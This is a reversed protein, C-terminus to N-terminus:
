AASQPAPDAPDPSRLRHRLIFAAADGDRRANLERSVRQFGRLDASTFYDKARQEYTKMTGGLSIWESLAIQKYQSEYHTRVIELGATAALLALSYPTHLFLHRPADLNAWAVGYKRWAYCGAIPIRILLRGDTALHRALNSLVEQPRDMHEFSHNLMILDFEGALDEIGQKRVKLGGPYTLHDAIFLDIGQLSRFGDRQLRLLLHGAGCGVDLIRADLGLPLGQMWGGFPPLPILRSLWRGGRGYGGLLLRTRQAKLWRRWGPLSRVKAPGYSCYDMPYWAAMDQPIDQLQLCGCATCELYRFVGAVGYMTEHAQHLRNGSAQGCIRCATTLNQTM